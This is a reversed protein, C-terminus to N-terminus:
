KFFCTALLTFFCKNILFYVANVLTQKTFYRRGAEKSTWFISTKSFGIRKRVKFKFALNILESLINLLLKHLITTYLVSFDFASISKPKKANIKNLKTVVSFYNQAFWWKKYGSYFFGKNYFSEVANFIMEFIKRIKNSPPKRSCYNSAAIFRACM